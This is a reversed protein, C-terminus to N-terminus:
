QIFEYYSYEMEDIVEWSQGDSSDRNRGNPRLITHYEIILTYPASIDLLDSQGSNVLAEFEDFPVVQLHEDRLFSFLRKFYFLTIDTFSTLSAYQKVYRIFSFIPRIIVTGIRKAGDIAYQHAYHVLKQVGSGMTISNLQVIDSVALKARDRVFQLRAGISALVSNSVKPKKSGCSGMTVTSDVRKKKRRWLSCLGGAVAAAASCFLISTLKM